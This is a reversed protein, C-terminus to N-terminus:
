KCQGVYVPLKPCRPAVQLKKQRAVAALGGGGKPKLLPGGPYMTLLAALWGLARGRRKFVQVNCAIHSSASWAGLVINFAGVVRHMLMHKKGFSTFKNQECSLNAQLGQM